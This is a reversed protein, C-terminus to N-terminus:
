HLHLSRYNWDEGFQQEPCPHNVNSLHNM